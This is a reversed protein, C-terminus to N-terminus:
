ILGSRVAHAIAQSRSRANLKTIADHLVNKVTRESYSLEHAVERTAHGEAILGLVRRERETLVQTRSGGNGPAGALLRGLLEPALVGAGEAGAHVAGVLAQPTLTDKSLVGVAGAHIAALVDPEGCRASCVIAHVGGNDCLTRILGHAGPADHDIVLVHAEALAPDASAEEVTAAETITGVEPLGGLSAVIGRRYIAHADLVFVNV